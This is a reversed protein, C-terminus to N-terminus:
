RRKYHKRKAQNSKRFNVKLTTNTTTSKQEKCQAFYKKLEEALYTFQGM